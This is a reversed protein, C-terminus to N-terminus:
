EGEGGTPATEFLATEVMSMCRADLDSPSLHRPETRAVLRASIWMAARHFHAIREKAQTLERAMRDAWQRLCLGLDDDRDDDPSWWCDGHEQCDRRFGASRIAGVLSTLEALAEDRERELRALTLVNENLSAIQGALNVAKETPQGTEPYYYEGM